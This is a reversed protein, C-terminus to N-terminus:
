KKKVFKKGHNGKNKNNNNNNGLKRNNNNKGNNLKNRNNAIVNPSLEAGAPKGLNIDANTASAVLKADYNTELRGRSMARLDAFVIEDTVTNKNWMLYMKKMHNAILWVLAEKEAPDELNVAFDIMSQTIRGYHRRHSYNSSYPLRDPPPLENVKTIPFPYDVDLQYDTMQALHDWLKLKFDKTEKLNPYMNAMISVLEYAGSNRRDRDPITMLHAAMEQINRGFEALILKPRTTNYEM